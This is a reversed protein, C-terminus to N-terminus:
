DNGTRRNRNETAARLAPDIRETRKAQRAPRHRRPPSNEEPPLTRKGDRCSLIRASIPRSAALHPQQMIASSNIARKAGSEEERHGGHRQPSNAGRRRPEAHVKQRIPTGSDPIGRFALDDIAGGRRAIGRTNGQVARRRRSSSLKYQQETISCAASRKVHPACAINNACPSSSGTAARVPGTVGAASLARRTPLAKARPNEPAHFEFFRRVASVRLSPPGTSGARARCPCCRAWLLGGGPARSANITSSADAATSSTSPVLRAIARSTSFGSWCIWAGYRTSTSTVCVSRRKNSARCNVGTRASSASASKPSSAMARCGCAGSSRRM